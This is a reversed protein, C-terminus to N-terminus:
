LGVRCHHFDLRARIPRAFKSVPSRRLPIGTCYREQSRDSTRVLPLPDDTRFGLMIMVHSIAILQMLGAVVFDTLNDAHVVLFAENQFWGRNVLV